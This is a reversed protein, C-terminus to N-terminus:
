FATGLRILILFINKFPLLGMGRVIDLYATENSELYAILDLAPRPNQVDYFVFARPNFIDMVERTGYYIPVCGALFANIIKETIYGEKYTNEMVLAFRYKGLLHHNNEWNSSRIEEDLLTTTSKDRTGQCRGGYYAPGRGIHSLTAFVKDRFRVCHSNTYILFREGSNMVKQNTDFIHSQIPPSLSCSVYMAGFFSRINKEGDTPMYSLAYLRDRVDLPYMPFAEGMVYVIQGHFLDPTDTGQPTHAFCPGRYSVVLVDNVDHNNGLHEDQLLMQTSQADDFLCSTMNEVFGRYGCWFVNYSSSLKVDSPSTDNRFSFDLRSSNSSNNPNDIVGDDQQLHLVEVNEDANEKGEYAIVTSNYNTDDNYISTKESTATVNSNDEADAFPPISGEKKEGEAEDEWSVINSANTTGTHNVLLTTNYNGGLLQHTSSNNISSSSNDNSSFNVWSSNINDNSKNSHSKSKYNNNNDDEDNYYHMDTVITATGHGLAQKRGGGRTWSSMIFITCISLVVVVRQLFMNRKNRHHQHRSHKNQVKGEDEQYYPISFSSSSLSSYSWCWNNNMSDHDQDQQDGQQHHHQKQKYSNVNM